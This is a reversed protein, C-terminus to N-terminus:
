GAAARASRGQARSSVAAEKVSASTRDLRVAAERKEKDLTRIKKQMKDSEKKFTTFAENSSSLSEQEGGAFRLAASIASRRLEFPFRAQFQWVCRFSGTSRRMHRWNMM